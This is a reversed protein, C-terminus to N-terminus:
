QSQSKLFHSSSHTCLELFHTHSYKCKNAYSSACLGPMHHPLIDVQEWVSQVYEKYESVPVTYTNINRRPDKM